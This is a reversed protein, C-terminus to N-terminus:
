EEWMGQFQKNPLEYEIWYQEQSVKESLHYIYVHDLNSEERRISAICDLEMGNMLSAKIENDSLKCTKNKLLVEKIMKNLFFSRDIGLVAVQNLCLLHCWM